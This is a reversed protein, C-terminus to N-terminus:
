FNDVVCKEQIIKFTYKKKKEKQKEHKFELEKFINTFAVNFEKSFKVGCLPTRM